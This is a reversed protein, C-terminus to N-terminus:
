PLVSHNFISVPGAPVDPTQFFYAPGEGAPNIPAARGLEAPSVHVATTTYPADGSMRAFRSAQEPTPFFYKGEGVGPPVRYVCAPTVTGLLFGFAELPYVHWGHLILKRVADKSVQVM